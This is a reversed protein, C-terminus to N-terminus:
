FASTTLYKAATEASYKIHVIDGISFSQKEATGKPLEVVLDAPEDPGVMTTSMPEGSCICIIRNDRCFIIDLPSPTNKMWFKRIGSIKYPFFMVPPPWAQNMLGINQERETVAVKADFSIGNIIVKDM